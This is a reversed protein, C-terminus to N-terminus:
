PLLKEIQKSRFGVDALVRRIKSKQRFVANKTNDRYGLMWGISEDSHKLQTLYIICLDESNLNDIAKEGCPYQKFRERTLNAIQNSFSDRLFQYQECIHSSSLQNKCFLTDMNQAINRLNSILFNQLELRHYEINIRYRKFNKFLKRANFWVILLMILLAIITTLGIKLSESYQQESKKIAQKFRKNALFLLEDNKAKQIKLDEENALKSYRKRAIRSGEKDYYHALEQYVARRTYSYNIEDMRGEVLDLYYKASDPQNTARYLRAYNLYINLVDETDQKESLALNFYDKALQYDKRDTFVVGLNNLFLLKYSKNQLKEAEELGKSFYTFAKDLEQLELYTRGLMLMIDLMHLEANPENEYLKLAQQYYVLASDLAEVDYYSSGIWHASKAQFLNNEAQQAFRNALLSCELAKTEIGSKHWYAAAYYSAKAAMDRNQKEAFYRQADLILSDATIDQYNMYRAQTLVVIYQMYSGHDLYTPYHIRELLLIAEQPNNDVIALANQLHEKESYKNACSMCLLISTCIIIYRVQRM